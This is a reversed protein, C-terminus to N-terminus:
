VAHRRAYVSQVLGLALMTTVMFSGGYSILPLPLGTIPMLGITMAVNVFVHGYLLTALGAALLQGFKDRARVAARVGRLFVVTYLALVGASGVFGTEEAVVSFIFDTPAVSRPLFGLVNQTGRLYGKGRMGGSGVAIESQIKNWGAGLPDRGPDAFVRIRERQYEGMGMWAVPLMLLGALVLVALKRAPVGAAFLMVWTVPLLMAATGLDPELAILVFPVGVLLAARAVTWWSRRDLGPRSLMRALAVVTALKAFESPQVQVGFFSLWRHAGHVATGVVLVLVLVALGVLYLWVSQEGIRRYDTVVAAVLFALGIVAWVVQRRYLAGAPQDEGRYGASYVFLVGVAALLLVAVVTPPDIRSLWFRIRRWGPM